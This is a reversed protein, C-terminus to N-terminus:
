ITPKPTTMKLNYEEYDGSRLTVSFPTSPRLDLSPV